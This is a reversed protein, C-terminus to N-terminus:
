AHGHTYIDRLRTIYDTIPSKGTDMIHTYTDLTMSVTSHGLWAQIYKDQIGYHYCLSSFTHRTNHIFVGTIGSKNLATKFAKKVGNYTYSGLKIDDFLDDLYPVARVSSETKPSTRESENAAISETIWMLHRHRDINEERLAVFEGIRLGSCCLFRFVAAYRPPLEALMKNQEEFSYARRPKSKAAPIEVLEVPNKRLYDLAVAKKFAGNLLDCFKERTNAATISLLFDQLHETRVELLQLAGLKNERLVSILHEYTKATSSKIKPARYKKYWEELWAVLSGKKIAVKRPKDPINKQAEQIRRLCEDATKATLTKQKGALMYRGQWYRYTTGNKNKREIRRVSGKGYKLQPVETKVEEYTGSNVVEFDTPAHIVFDGDPSFYAPTNLALGWKEWENAPQKPAIESIADDYGRLASAIKSIEGTKKIIEELKDGLYSM